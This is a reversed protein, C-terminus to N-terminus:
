LAKEKALNEIRTNNSFLYTTKAPTQSTAEPQREYLYYRVPGDSASLAVVWRSDDQTRSTVGWEGEGALEDLKAVDGAIRKDLVKWNTKDYNFAVAQLTKETPHILAGGVDAKEDEALLEQKGTKLDMKYVAATDRGKSDAM